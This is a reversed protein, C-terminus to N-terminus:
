STCMPEKRNLDWLRAYKTFVHFASGGALILGPWGDLLGVQFFYTRCFQYVPRLTVDRVRARRGRDHLMQASLDAYRFLKHVYHELDPDSYHLLQGSLDRIPGEIQAREHVPDNTFSM